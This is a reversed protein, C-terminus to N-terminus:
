KGDEVGPEGEVILRWGLGQLLWWCSVDTLLVGYV